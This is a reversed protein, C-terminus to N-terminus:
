TTQLTRTKSALLKLYNLKFSIKMLVCECVQMLLSLMLGYTHMDTNKTLNSKKKKSYANTDYM